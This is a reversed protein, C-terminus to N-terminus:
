QISVHYTTLFILFSSLDSPFEERRRKADHLLLFFVASCLLSLLHVLRKKKKATYKQLSLLSLSYVIIPLSLSFCPLLSISLCTATLWSSNQRSSLCQRVAKKKRLDAAHFHFYTCPIMQNTQAGYSKEERDGPYKMKKAEWFALPLFLSLCTQFSFCLPFSLLFPPLLLQLLLILFFSLFFLFRRPLSLDSSYTTEKKTREKKNTKKTEEHNNKEGKRSRKKRRKRQGGEKKGPQRLRPASYFSKDDRKLHLTKTSGLYSFTELLIPSLFLSLLSEERETVQENTCDCTLTSDKWEDM